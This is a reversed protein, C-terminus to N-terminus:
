VTVNAIRLLVQVKQGDTAVSQAEGMINANPVGNASKAKGGAAMIVQEGYAIPGSAIVEAIRDYQVAIHTGEREAEQYTVVGLVPLNDTEPVQAQKPTDGYTVAQDTGVHKHTANHQFQYTKQFGTTNGGM